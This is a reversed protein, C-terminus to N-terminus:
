RSTILTISGHLPKVVIGTLSHLYVDCSYFYTGDSCAEKSLYDRGDWNINPEETHFVKRGWRNYITMDIKEVNSYPQYPQFLDNVGDGNPTFVNPLRYDMCDEVDFCVSDTRNSINHNFDASALAFCGTVFPLYTITYSCQTQNCYSYDLSDILHFDEDLTPKYYLYFTEVEAAAEATSFKWELFVSQCDTTVELDPIEPPINDIPTGCNKQSKNYLPYLSDPIFYGGKSRIYYCYDKENELNEDIYFRESTEAISDWSHLDESLRFITYSQNEWSVQENWYLKLKKDMSEINLYVSSSVDSKEIFQLSDNAMGWFEIMYLYDQETTNLGLDTYSTDNMSFTTGIQSYASSGYRTKRFIRYQYEPGPFQLSDFETPKHWSVYISGNSEHTDEVDIHTILPADNLLRTCVEDSVYSEAGDAFFATIRYCYENGHYLPRVSGNDIFSTDYINNITGILYYGQDDPMGTECEAPEFPNSGNRRYIKFGIGNTCNYSDWSLHISNGIAFAELNDPKPAVVTIYITKYNSLAVQPGSDVAKFFVSYPSASIHGCSTQWTFFSSVPSVSSNGPFYAPSPIQFCSGTATLTVEGGDPDTATIPMHILTGATVCTDSAEIIPPRNNCASITIQMDRVVSGILVGQRWEQILIAINYEGAMTPSDWVFDGTVPDISIHSSAHPLTYGPIDEGEYGRCTILSFSLSDGDSDYAGPNHYYPINTCGNDIPPNLLDPSNNSGLFPNIILTSEIYFPINVSNPINVIGANRNPDEFSITYIGNGAYTHEGIYVNRSIDNEMNNKAYRPIISTSGDGWFVEIEPRDAPSPTYTYTIITFRYTLGYLHEYTIEGSRQHTAWLPITFFLLIIYILAKKLNKTKSPAFTRIIRSNLM